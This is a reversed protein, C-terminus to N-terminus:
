AATHSLIIFNIFNNFNNIDFSFITLNCRQKILDFKRKTNKFITYNDIEIENSVFKQDWCM